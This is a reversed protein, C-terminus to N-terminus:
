YDCDPGIEPHAQLYAIERKARDLFDNDQTLAQRNRFISVHPIAAITTEVLHLKHALLALSVLRDPMFQKDFLWVFYATLRKPSMSVVYDGNATQDPENEFSLFNALSALGDPSVLYYMGDRGLIGHVINKPLIPKNPQWQWRTALDNLGNTTLTNLINM